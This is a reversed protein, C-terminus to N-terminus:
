QSCKDHNKEKNKRIGILKIIFDKCLTHIYTVIKPTYCATFANQLNLSGIFFYFIKFQYQHLTMENIRGFLSYCELSIISKIYLYNM